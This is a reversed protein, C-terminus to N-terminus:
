LDGKLRSQEDTALKKEITIVRDREGKRTCSLEFVKTNEMINEVNYVKGNGILYYADKESSWLIESGKVWGVSLIACLCFSVWM